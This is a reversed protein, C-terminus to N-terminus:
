LQNHTLWQVLLVVIFRPSVNLAPPAGTPYQLYSALTGLAQTAGGEFAFYNFPSKWQWDFWLKDVM